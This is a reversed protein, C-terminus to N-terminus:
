SGVNSIDGDPLLTRDPDNDIRPTADGIYGEILLHRAANAFLRKDTPLKFFSPWVGETLDNVLTHAWYRGGHPDRLRLVLRPDAIERRRLLHTLVPGGLGHRSRADALHRQRDSPHRITRLCSRPLYGARQCWRLLVLPVPSHGRHDES